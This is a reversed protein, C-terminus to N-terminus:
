DPDPMDERRRSIVTSLHDRAVTVVDDTALDRVRLDGGDLSLEVDEDRKGGVGEYTLPGAELLTTLEPVTLDPYDFLARGIARYRLDRTDAGHSWREGAGKKGAASKAEREAKVENVVNAIPLTFDAGPGLAKRAKALRRNIRKGLPTCKTKSAM